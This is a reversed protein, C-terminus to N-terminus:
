HSANIVRRTYDDLSEGIKPEIGAHKGREVITDGRTHPKNLKAWDGRVSNRFAAKWDCYTAGSARAYDCFYDFREPLKSYGHMKAWQWLDESLVFDAPLDTSPNRKM